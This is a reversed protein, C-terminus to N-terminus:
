AFTGHLTKKKWADLKEDYIRKGYDALMETKAIVKENLAGKLGRVQNNQLYEHLSKYRSTIFEKVGILGRGEKKKPLNFSLWM